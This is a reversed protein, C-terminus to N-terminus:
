FGVQEANYRPDFFKTVHCLDHVAFAFPDSGVLQAAEAPLLSVCRRGQAQLFLVSEATPVERLLEVPFSEAWGILGRAATKPVRYVRTEAFWKVLGRSSRCSLAPNWSGQLYRKGALNRAGDLLFRVTVEAPTTTPQRREGHDM